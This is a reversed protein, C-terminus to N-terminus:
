KHVIQKQDGNKWASVLAMGKKTLEIQYIEDYIIMDGFLFGRERTKEFKIREIRALDSAILTSCSLVGEGSVTLKGTKSLTLLLDISKRDLAENLSLLFLKWARLSEKPIHGQHHLAHCNPCLPLLNDPRNGGNKSVYDLHHIDITLITRCTPNSCKYGAEHLVLRRVELSISKRKKPMNEQADLM